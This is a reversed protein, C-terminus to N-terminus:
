ARPPPPIPTLALSRPREYRSATYSTSCAAFPTAMLGAELRAASHCACQACHHTAGGPLIPDFPTGDVASIAVAELSGFSSPDAFIHPTAAAVVLMIAMARAIVKRWAIARLFPRM